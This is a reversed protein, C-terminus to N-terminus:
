PQISNFNPKEMYLRETLRRTFNISKLARTSITKGFDSLYLSPLHHSWTDDLDRYVVRAIKALKGANAHAIYNRMSRMKDIDKEDQATIISYQRCLRTKDVLGLLEIVEKTGKGSSILKDELALEVISTCWLIVSAFHGCIYLQIAESSYEWLLEPLEATNYTTECLESRRRVRDERTETDNKKLYERFEDDDM